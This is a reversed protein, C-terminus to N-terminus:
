RAASRTTSKGLALARSEAACNGQPRQGSAIASAIEARAANLDSRFASSKKAQAVTAAGIVFGADVDSQWQVDCIVRSKGFERARDIIERARAPNLEALVLGYAWGVASRASPYSGETRTLHDDTPSCPRTHHVIFPQPRKYYNKARYSARRADIRLRVLLQYLAPTRKNNIDAGVACSFAEVTQSSGRDADSIAIAYRPTGISALTLRRMAEDGQMASSGPAPPPPLLALSDPLQDQSLYSGKITLTKTEPGSLSRLKAKNQVALGAVTAFGAIAIIIIHKAALM